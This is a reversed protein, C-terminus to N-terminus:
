HGYRDLVEMLAACADPTSFSCPAVKSDRYYAGSHIKRQDSLVCFLPTAAGQKRAAETKDMDFGLGLSLASTAIGPHSSTVIVSPRADGAGDGGGGGGAATAATKAFREAWAAAMMRNAQKSAMYAANTDYDRRAFEPDSLDLGGAYGSAVNHVRAPTANARSALLLFPAFEETLWHYGLVNCAWQMELGEDSKSRQPPSVAANNILIDLPRSWQAAFARIARRSACDVAAFRARADPRLTNLYEVLAAGRVKDRGLCVTDYGAQVLGAAIHMGFAGTAGTVIAVGTM